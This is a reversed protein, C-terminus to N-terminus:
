ERSNNQNLFLMLMYYFMLTVSAFLELAGAVHSGPPYHRLVNSTDYLIYGASLLLMGVVFLLGLSFGLLMSALVLGLAAFSLVVLFPRLFSFDKGSAVVTFTLAGFVLLTCLGAQLALNKGAYQPMTESIVLLPLFIVVELLTYLILGAWQVAPSTRSRAMAQAAMGGVIFAVMLGLMAGRSVFVSKVFQEAVGSAVLAGTILAFALIAGFLTLYTKRIFAGRVNEPADMASTGYSRDYVWDQAM